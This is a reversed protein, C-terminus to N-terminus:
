VTLLRSLMPILNTSTPIVTLTIILWTGVAFWKGNQSRKKDARFYVEAVLLPLLYYVLSCLLMLWQQDDINIMVAATSLRSVISVSM